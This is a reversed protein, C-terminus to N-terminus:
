PWVMHPLITSMRDAAAPILRPFFFSLLFFSLFWLSFIYHDARNWLAAMFLERITDVSQSVYINLINQLRREAGTLTFLVCKGGCEMDNVCLADKAVANSVAVIM